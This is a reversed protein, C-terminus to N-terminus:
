GMGPPAPMSAQSSGGGLLTSGGLQLMAPNVGGTGSLFTQAIGPSGGGQGSGALQTRVANANPTQAAQPAPPTQIKPTGPQNMASYVSAGAGMVAAAAMIMTPTIGM